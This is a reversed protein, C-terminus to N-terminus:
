LRFDSTHFACRKPLYEKYTRSNARLQLDGVPKLLLKLNSSLRSM